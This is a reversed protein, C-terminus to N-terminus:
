GSPDASQTPQEKTPQERAHRRRAYPELGEMARAIAWNHNWRLAPRLVPTLIKLLTRDAIVRWDFRVHTGGSDIPTLTWIGHGRLDGEVDAEVVRPSDLHVIRSTTRLDYPLRGQFHQKSVQGVALPGDVEVDKYVANWWDPYTTSDALAAFVPHAPADVDWEDVFVYERGSREAVGAVSLVTRAFARQVAAPPRAARGEDPFDHIIRAAATPRLYGRRTIGGERSLDALRELLEETRLAPELKVRVRGEEPGDAYHRHSTGAPIVLSEGATLVRDRGGMSVRLRGSVVEHRESQLPHVHRQAPFGRPRGIVEYELVEGDTEAATRLFVIQMGLAPVDLLDGAKAM